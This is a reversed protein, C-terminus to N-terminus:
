PFLTYTILVPSHDSLRNGDNEEDFVRHTLVNVNSERVFCFDIATQGCTYAPDFHKTMDSATHFGNSQILAFYPSGPATNFDGTLVVPGEFQGVLQMLISFQKQRVAEEFSMHTNCHTVRSGTHLDELVATTLIRYQPTDVLKSVTSPTPSLWQTKTEVLRFTDKRYFVANRWRQGNPDNIEGVVGYYDGLRATLAEYWAESCEQVGITDPLERLLLEVVRDIRPANEEASYLLNFSMSSYVREVPPICRNESSIVIAGDADPASEMDQHIFNRVAARVAYIEGGALYLRGDEFWVIGEEPVCQELVQQMASPLPRSTKGIIIERDGASSSDDKVELRYGYRETIFDRLVYAENREGYMASRAYVISYERLEAGLMQISNIAYSGGIQLRFDSPLTLTSQGETIYEDLFHEVAEYTKEPCGGCIFLDDGLLTIEYGDYRLGAVVSTSGPRNTSGVVIEHPREADYDNCIKMEVGTVQKIRDRLLVAADVERRDAREARVIVYDSGAENIIALGPAATGPETDGNEKACGAALLCILLLCALIRIQKM